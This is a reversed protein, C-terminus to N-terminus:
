KNTQRRRVALTILLAATVIGFGAVVLPSKRVVQLAGTNPASPDDGTNLATLVVDNGDGGVYSISFTIGDVTLQGGEALGEFTGEVDTESLNDIITFTDGKKITWGDFLVVNLSAGSNLFVANSSGTYNEGIALKDYTSKNLLEAEYTGTLTFNDLVTLTGPSNGPAIVGGDDVYVGNATGTGKLTGGANVGIM